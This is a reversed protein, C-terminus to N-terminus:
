DASSIGLEECAILGMRLNPLMVIGLLEDGKKERGGRRKIGRL